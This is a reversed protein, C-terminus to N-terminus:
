PGASGPGPLLFTINALETAHLAMGFPAPERVRWEDLRNFQPKVKLPQVVFALGTWMPEFETRPMARIGTASDGLLIHRDTVGKVVVFHRYGKLDILVIAPLSYRALQDLEVRYGDAKYGRATLYNKMDLMSFGVKRIKQQDGHDYMWRFITEESVPDAYHYTLLTSLAASGCSYDFRQRTTTLFRKEKKSTVPVDIGSGSLGPVLVTGAQLAGSILLAAAFFGAKLVKSKM